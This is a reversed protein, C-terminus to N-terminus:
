EECYFICSFLYCYILVYLYVIKKVLLCFLQVFFLSHSSFPRSPSGSHICYMEIEGVVFVRSVVLHQEFYSPKFLLYFDISCGTILENLLLNKLLYQYCFQLIVWVCICVIQQQAEPIFLLAIGDESYNVNDNIRALLFQFIICHHYLPLM